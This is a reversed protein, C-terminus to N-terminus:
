KLFNDIMRRQKKTPRGKENREIKNSLNKNQNKKLIFSDTLDEFYLSNIKTNVRKKPIDSIKIKFHVHKKNVEIIEGIVIEKSPKVIKTNLKVKGKKCADTSLSRSKYFRIHWLFQDIRM